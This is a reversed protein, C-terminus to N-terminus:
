RGAWAELVWGLDESSVAPDLILRDPDLDPLRGRFRRSANSFGRAVAGPERRPLIGRDLRSESEHVLDFGLVNGGQAWALGSNIAAEFGGELGQEGAVRLAIPALAIQTVTLVPYLAAAEGRQPDVLGPWSGDPRQLELVATALSQALAATESGSDARMTQCLSNLVHFQNGVPAAAANRRKGEETFLGSESARSVLASTAEERLSGLQGGDGALVAAETLGTVVWALQELPLTDFKRSAVRQLSATLEGIAGGDDRSEAWLALGIDGAHAEHGSLAGLVTTRLAGTAFPQDLGVEDARRLGVLVICAASLATPPPGQDDVGDLKATARFLGNAVQLEPLRTLAIQEFVRPDANIVM